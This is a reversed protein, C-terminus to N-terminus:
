NRVYKLAIELNKMIKNIQLLDALVSDKFDDVNGIIDDILLILLTEEEKSLKYLFIEKKGEKKSGQSGPILEGKKMPYEDTGKCKSEYDKPIIIDITLQHRYSNLKGMIKFIKDQYKKKLPDRKVKEIALKWRSRPVLAIQQFTIVKSLLEQSIDKMWAHLEDHHQKAFDAEILHFKNLNFNYRDNTGCIKGERLDHLSWCCMNQFTQMRKEQEEKNESGPRGSGIINRNKNKARRQAQIRISSYYDDKECKNIFRKQANNHRGDKVYISQYNRKNKKNNEKKWIEYQNKDIQEWCSDRKRIHLLLKRTVKKCIPCKEPIETEM